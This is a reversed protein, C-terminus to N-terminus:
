SHGRGIRRKTERGGDSLARWLDVSAHKVILFLGFIPLVLIYALGALAAALMRGLLRM